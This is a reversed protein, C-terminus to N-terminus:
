NKILVVKGINQALGANEFYLIYTGAAYGALEVRTEADTVKVQTVASGNMSYVLINGTAESTQIVVADQAPNPAYSWNHAALTIPIPLDEKTCYGCCGCYICDSNILPVKFSTIVTEPLVMGSEVMVIINNFELEIEPLTYECTGWGVYSFIVVDRESM